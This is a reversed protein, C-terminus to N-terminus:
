LRRYGSFLVYRVEVPEGDRTAPEFRWTQVTRAVNNAFETSNAGVVEPDSVRGEVDITVEVCAYGQAPGSRPARAQPTHVGEPAEVDPPLGEGEPCVEPSYRMALPSQEPGGSTGTACAVVSLALFLLAFRKM